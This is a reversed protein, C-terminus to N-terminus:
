HLQVRHTYIVTALICWCVYMSGVPVSYMCGCGLFMWAVVGFWGEFICYFVIM